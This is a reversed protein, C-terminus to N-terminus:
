LDLEKAIIESLKKAGKDNVHDYDFFDANVFTQNDYLDLLKFHYKEKLPNMHKSFDSILKSNLCKRYFKNMPPVYVLVNIGKENMEQLFDSFLSINEQISKEYRMTREHKSTIKRANNINVQKNNEIAMSGVRPTLYYHSNKFLDNLYDSKEKNWLEFPLLFNQLPTVLFINSLEDMDDKFNHKDKFIPYNVERIRPQHEDSNSLSIDTGWLYYAFSLVINTINPNYELAKRISLISYYIDQGDVAINRAPIPMQKEFLGCMTYSSGALLLKIDQREKLSNLKAELYLRTHNYYDLNNLTKTFSERLELIVSLPFMFDAQTVNLTNKKDDYVLVSIENDGGIYNSPTENLKTVMKMNSLNTLAEDVECEYLYLHFDFESLMTSVFDNVLKLLRNRRHRILDTNKQNALLQEIYNFLEIFFSNDKYIPYIFVLGKALMTACEYLESHNSQENSLNRFLSETLNLFSIFDKKNM